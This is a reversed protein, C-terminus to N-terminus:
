KSFIESTGDYQVALLRRKELAVFAAQRGNCTCVLLPYKKAELNKFLPTNLMGARYFHYGIDRVDAMSYRLDLTEHCSTELGKIDLSSGHETRWNGQFVAKLERDARQDAWIALKTRVFVPLGLAGKGWRDKNSMEPMAYVFFHGIFLLAVAPAVWRRNRWADVCLLALSALMIWFAAWQAWYFLETLDIPYTGVGDGLFLYRGFLIFLGAAVVLLVIGSAYM